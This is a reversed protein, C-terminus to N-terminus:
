IAFPVVDMGTQGDLGKSEHISVLVKAKPLYWMSVRKGMLLSVSKKAILHCWTSTRQGVLVSSETRQIAVTSKYPLCNIQNLLVSM